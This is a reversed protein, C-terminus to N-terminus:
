NVMRRMAELTDNALMTEEVSGLVVADTLHVVPRKGELAPASAIVFIAARL